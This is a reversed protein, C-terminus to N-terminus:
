AIRLISMVNSHNQIQTGLKNLHFGIVTVSMVHHSTVCDLNDCTADDSRGDVFVITEAEDESSSSIEINSLLVISSLLVHGTRLSVYNTWIDTIWQRM